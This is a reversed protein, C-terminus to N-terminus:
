LVILGWGILFILNSANQLRKSATEFANQFRKSPTKFANQLRKSLM